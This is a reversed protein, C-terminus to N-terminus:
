LKKKRTTIKPNEKYVLRRRKTEGTINQVKIDNAYGLNLTPYANIKTPEMDVFHSSCVRAQKGPTWLAVSNCSKTRDVPDM